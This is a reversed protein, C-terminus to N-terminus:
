AAPQISGTALADAIASPIPFFSFNTGAPEVTIGMLAFDETDTSNALGEDTWVDMEIPLGPLFLVPTDFYGIRVQTDAYIPDLAYFYGAVAPGQTFRVGSLVPSSVLQGYGIIGIATNQPQTGAVFKVWAGSAVPGVVNFRIKSIPVGNNGASTFDSAVLDRPFLQNNTGANVAINLANALASRYAGIQGLDLQNAPVINM